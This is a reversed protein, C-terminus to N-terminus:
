NLHAAFKVSVVTALAGHTRQMDTNATLMDALTFEVEKAVEIIIDVFTALIDSYTNVLELIKELNLQQAAALETIESLLAIVACPRTYVEVVYPNILNKPTILTAKYSGKMLKFTIKEDLKKIFNEASKLTLFKFVQNKADLPMFEYIGERDVSLKQLAKTLVDIIKTPKGPYADKVISEYYEANKEHSFYLTDGYLTFGWEKIPVMSVVDEECKLNFINTYSALKAEDEETTTLAPNFCYFLSKIDKNNDSMEKGVLNIIAGGRSHGVGFFYTQFSNDKYDSIYQIIDQYVRNSTTSFGKHDKKNIWDSSEGFVDKYSQSDYGIDFNSAWGTTNLYGVISGFFFQYKQGNIVAKHHGLYIGCKDYKNDKYGVSINVIDSMGIQTYFPFISEDCKSYRNNLFTTKGEEYTDYVMSAGIEAVMPNFTPKDDYLFYRYDITIDIPNTSQEEVIDFYTTQYKNNNPDPDISDYLGDFDTDLYNLSPTISQNCGVLCTLLFPILLCLRAKKM